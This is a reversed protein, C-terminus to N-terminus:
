YIFNVNQFKGQCNVVLKFRSFSSAAIIILPNNMFITSPCNFVEFNSPSYGKQINSHVAACQNSKFNKLMLLYNKYINIKKLYFDLKMSDNELLLVLLYSWNSFRMNCLLIFRKFREHIYNIYFLHNNLINKTRDINVLLNDDM